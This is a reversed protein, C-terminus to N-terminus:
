GEIKIADMLGPKRAEGYRTDDSGFLIQRLLENEAKLVENREELNEAVVLLDKPDLESLTKADDLKQNYDNLYKRRIKVVYDTM